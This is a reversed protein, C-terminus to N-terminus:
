RSSRKRKRSVRTRIVRKRQSGQRTRPRPPTMESPSRKRPPSKNTPPLTRSNQTSRRNTVRAPPTHPLEEQDEQVIRPQGRSSRRPLYQEYLEELDQVMKHSPIRRIYEKGNRFITTFLNQCEKSYAIEFCSMSKFMPLLSTKAGEPYCVHASINCEPHTCTAM